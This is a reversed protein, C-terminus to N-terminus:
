QCGRIWNEIQVLYRRYDFIDEEVECRDGSKSILKELLVSLEQEFRETSLLFGNKHESLYQKLDSTENTIVPVKCSISEVFKTPFGAMSVKTIERYFITYDSNKVIEIAELHPIRGRFTIRKAVQSELLERDEPYYEVYEKKTIGVIDLHIQDSSCSCVAHIIGDLKDKTRGPAGAYSLRLENKGDEKINRIWKRDKKDVLPPVVVVPLHKKYYNGLYSSIAILGDLRKQVLHMRFFSDLSLAIDHVSLSLKPQYWETCDSYVKINRKKCIKILKHLAMAPYNYAIVGIWDTYEDLVEEVHLPNLVYTAWRKVGTPRKQSYTPFGAEMHMPSLEYETRKEDIDLFVVGYDLMNLIKAIAVVRHAAANKDPLQFGGVYLFRKKKDIM